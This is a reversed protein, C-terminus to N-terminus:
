ISRCTSRIAGPCSRRPYESTFRGATAERKFHVLSWCPVWVLIRRLEWRPSGAHSFHPKAIEAFRFGKRPKRGHQALLSHASEYDLRLARQAARVTCDNTENRLHAPYGTRFDSFRWGAPPTPMKLGLMSVINPQVIFASM